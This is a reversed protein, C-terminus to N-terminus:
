KQETTKKEGKKGSKKSKKETKKTPEQAFGFSVTGIVLSLGLLVTMLKKM